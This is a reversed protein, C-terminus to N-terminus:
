EEPPGGYATISILRLTDCVHDVVFRVTTSGYDDYLSFGMFIRDAEQDAPLKLTMARRTGGPQLGADCWSISLSFGDEGELVANEGPVAVVSGTAIIRDGGTNGKM